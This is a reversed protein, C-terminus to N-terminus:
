SGYAVHRARLAPQGGSDEVNRGQDSGDASASRFEV